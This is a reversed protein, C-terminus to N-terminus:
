ALPHLAHWLVLAAHVQVTVHLSFYSSWLTHAYIYICVCVCVCVCAWLRNFNWNSSNDQYKQQLIMTVFTLVLNPVSSRNLYNRHVHLMKQMHSCLQSFVSKLLLSILYSLLIQFKIIRFIFHCRDTVDTYCAVQWDWWYLIGGTLWTLIFCWRDTMDIYFEM